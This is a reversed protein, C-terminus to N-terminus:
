HRFILAVGIGVIALIMITSTINSTTSVTGPTLTTGNTKVTAGKNIAFAGLIDSGLASIASSLGSSSSSLASNNNLESPNSSSTVYSDSGDDTLGMQALTPGAVGDMVTIGDMQDDGM